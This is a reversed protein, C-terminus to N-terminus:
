SAFLMEIALRSELAGTKAQWELEVAKQRLTNIRSFPTAAFEQLDTKIKFPHKQSLEAMRTQSYGLEQWYRLQFQGGLWSQILAFLQLPHQRLLLEDLIQFIHERNRSHLWDGLMQFTNEPHNSLALVDNVTIPRGATYVSLKEAETMLPRLLVGQQEVMLLAAKPEIAIGKRQCEQVLCHAADEQKYFPFEKFERITVTLTKHTTLWKAFKVSRNVKSSYFLVHKSDELSELLAMFEALQKEDGADSVAKYLPAFEHVEILTQGGLNFYVAGLAELIEPFGPERLVRHGLAGLGPNIVAQRLTSLAQHLLYEESGYYLSIPM